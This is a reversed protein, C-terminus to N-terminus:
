KKGAACGDMASHGECWGMVKEGVTFSEVDLQNANAYYVGHVSLKAKDYKDGKLLDASYKNPLLTIYQGDATKLAHTHGFTSCQARAGEAKLSCGLCVLTGEMDVHQAKSGVQQEAKKPSEQEGAMAVAAILMLSLTLFTTTRKLM